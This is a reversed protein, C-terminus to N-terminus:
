LIHIVLATPQPLFLYIARSHLFSVEYDTTQENGSRLLIRSVWALIVPLLLARLPTSVPHRILAILINKWTLTRIQRLFLM